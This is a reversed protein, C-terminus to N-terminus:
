GKLFLSYLICLLGLGWCYYCFGSFRGRRTLGRLLRLSLYGSVGAALMGLLWAPLESLDPRSRVAEGLKLLNAGLIAPLSLLFSYKVATERDLSRALGATVTCGSRSLGPLVALAQTLGVLLADPVTMRGLDKRGRPLRASLFLLCGTCLLALGIFTVSGSLVEVREGAM